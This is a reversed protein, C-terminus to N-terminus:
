MKSMRRTNARRTREYERRAKKFDQQEQKQTRRVEEEIAIRKRKAQLTLEKQNCVRCLGTTRILKKVHRGCRPCELFRNIAGIRYAHRKTAEFSRLVGTERYILKRCKEYGLAAYKLLLEEQEETWKPM